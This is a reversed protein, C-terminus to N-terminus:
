KKSYALNLIGFVVSLIAYISIDFIGIFNVGAGVLFLIGATKLLNHNTRSCINLIGAILGLIGPITYIMITEEMDDMGALILCSALIIMIIGTILKYTGRKNDSNSVNSNIPNLDNMNNVNLDAAQMVPHGCSSCFKAGEELKNGCNGCYEQM